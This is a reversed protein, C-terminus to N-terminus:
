RFDEMQSGTADVRVLICSGTAIETVIVQTETNRLKM